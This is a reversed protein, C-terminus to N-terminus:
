SEKRRPPIGAGREGWERLASRVETEEDDSVVQKWRSSVSPGVFWWENVFPHKASEGRAIMQEQPQVQARITVGRVTEVIPRTMWEHPDRAPLVDELWQKARKTVDELTDDPDAHGALGSAEEHEFVWLARLDPESHTARCRVVENDILLLLPTEESAVPVDPELERFEDVQYWGGDVEVCWPVRGGVEALEPRRGSPVLEGTTTRSTGRHRCDWSSGDRRRSSARSPRDSSSSQCVIRATARCRESAPDELASRLGRIWASCRTPSGGPVGYRAAAM